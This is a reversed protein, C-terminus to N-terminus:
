PTPGPLPSAAVSLTKRAEVNGAKDRSFFYVTHPNQTTVGFPGQYISCAAPNAPACAANDVAYLTAYVGSGMNRDSGSDSASLTVAVGFRNGTLSSLTTPAITDYCVPGFIALSPKGANNWAQVNATHCGQSGAWSVRLFGSTANPFQPGSYFYDGTGPTAKSFADSFAMDWAQSFGSVGNGPWVTGSKEAVTWNVMVDFNYWQNTAPGNFTVAPKGLDGAYFNNIAWALQLLNASGWGTVLDYGPAACYYNIKNATTVDNSNCGTKIDYFPYHGAADYRNPHGGEYYMAFNANGMPACPSTGQSASGGCINGLSLLYANAQAFFGALEPAVISTGGSAQLSGQYYINQM